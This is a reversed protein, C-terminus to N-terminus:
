RYSWVLRIVINSQSQYGQQRKRANNCGPENWTITGKEEVIIVFYKNKHHIQLKVTMPLIKLSGVFMVLNNNDKNTTNVGM